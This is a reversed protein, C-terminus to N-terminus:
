GEVIRWVEDETGTFPGSVELKLTALAAAFKGAEEPDAGRSRMYLYGTSYTDGCGTTDVVKRPPYACIEYFHDNELILSGQDGLTVCVENIGWEALQLAADHPEELGTLMKMEHENVKLVDIYRFAELKDKWDVPFVKDGRVERLFGQSEVSLTGKDSLYKILDLSFDDALLSGLHYVGAKIWKFDELRFADAKALVRQSRNNRNEGYSNEFFVTQASPFVSVQIGKERLDEVARMESSALATVLRFDRGGNLRQLAHAFYYATGGFQEVENEPTIIKDLTIHGICCIKDM